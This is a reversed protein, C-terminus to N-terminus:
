HMCAHGRGKLVYIHLRKHNELIMAILQPQVTM